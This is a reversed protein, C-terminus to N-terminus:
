EKEKTHIATSPHKSKVIKEIIFFIAVFTVKQTNLYIQLIFGGFLIALYIYTGGYNKKANGRKRKTFQLTNSM